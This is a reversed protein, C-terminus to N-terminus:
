AETEASGARVVAAGIGGFSAREPQLALLRRFGLSKQIGCEKNLVAAPLVYFQWHDVNLAEVKAADQEHLLCFVYVQAQRIRSKGFIATDPNWGLTPKIDFSILSPRRQDWGQVYAASKVEVTIGNETTLDYPTWERRVGDSVGLDLAVLYEALRGRTANSLLDSAMWQWFHLVDAPHATGGAHFAEHGLLRKVQRM